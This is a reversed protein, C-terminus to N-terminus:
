KRLLYYASLHNRRHLYENTKQNTSVPFVRCDGSVKTFDCYKQIISLPLPLLPIRAKVQTKTRKTKIWYTDEDTKIIEGAKLSKIDSFALGTYCSVIFFDRVKRLRETRLNLKMISNVEDQTLFVPNTKHTGLSFGYFPDAKVWGSRFARISIKKFLGLNKVATNHSHKKDNKLFDYFGNVHDYTLRAIPLDLCHHRKRLFEKLYEKVRNNKQWLTHSCSKGIQKQLQEIYEEYLEIVGQHGGDKRGLVHNMVMDATVHQEVNKLHSYGQIARAAINEIYLNISVATDSKGKARQKKTCWHKELVRRHISTSKSKGNITIRFM